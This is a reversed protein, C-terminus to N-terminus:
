TMGLAAKACQEDQDSTVGSVGVGGTVEGEVMIPIGGPVAFLGPLTPLPRPARTSRMRLFARRAGIPRRPGRRALPSTSARRKRTTWANSTSSSDTTISWPWLWTGDTRRANPSPAPQLRRRPRPMSLRATTPASTGRKLMESELNGAHQKWDPTERIRFQTEQGQEKLADDAALAGRIGEYMMTLSANTFAQYNM